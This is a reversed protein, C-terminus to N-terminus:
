AASPLDTLGLADKYQRIMDNLHVLRGAKQAPTRSMLKTRGKARHAKARGVLVKSVAEFETTIPLPASIPVKRTEHGEHFVVLAEFSKTAANYNLNQVETQYSSM